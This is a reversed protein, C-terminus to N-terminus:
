DRDHFILLGDKEIKYSKSYRYEDHYEVKIVSSNLIKCGPYMESLLTDLNEKKDSNVVVTIIM